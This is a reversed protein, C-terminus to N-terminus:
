RVEKNLWELYHPDVEEVNICEISPVGYSHLKKIVEMVEKVREDKTKCIMMLEEDINIKEQWWYISRVHPIINVCAVLRQKVLEEGIEKAEKQDRLTSMIIKM